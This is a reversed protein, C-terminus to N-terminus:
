DNLSEAMLRLKRAMNELALGSAVQQQQQQQPRSVAADRTQATATTTAPDVFSSVPQLAGSMKLPPHAQTQTQTQTQLALYAEYDHDRQPEAFHMGAYLHSGYGASVQPPQDSIHGAVEESSHPEVSGDAHEEKTERAVREAAEKRMMRRKEKEKEKEEEEEKEKEEAAAKEREHQASTVAELAKEATTLRRTLEEREEELAVAARKQDKYKAKYDVVLEQAAMETAQHRKLDRQLTKHALAAKSMEKRVICLESEAQHVKDRYEDLIKELNSTEERTSADSLRSQLEELRTTLLDHQDSM